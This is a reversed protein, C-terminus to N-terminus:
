ELRIFWRGSLRTFKIEKGNLTAVGADGTLTVHEAKGWPVPLVDEPKEGKKAHAKLFVMADGVFATLDVGKFLDDPDRAFPPKVQHKAFFADVENTTQEALKTNGMAGMPLFAMAMAVGQGFTSRETPYIVSLLQGGKGAQAGTQMQKLVAEVSSAGESPGVVPPPPPPAPPRAADSEMKRAADGKDGAPAATSEAAKPGAALGFGAQVSFPAKITRLNQWLEFEIAITKDKTKVDLELEARENMYGSGARRGELPANKADFFRIEKITNLVTRTLGLTIKTSEDDAKVENVTMAAAGVKFAQNEVLRVAAVRTPKSGGALTMALSGQVSVATAGASPRGRVEVEALAASGDEAIKPFSGVRGEELLSQGKDDAFADIQSGHGDIQVIGSGRPAQIAVVVVTGPSENFPRLESGNAGLGLGVIRIGAASVQPPPPAPAQAQPTPRQNGRGAPQGGRGQATLPASTALLAVGCM